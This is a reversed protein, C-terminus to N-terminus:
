INVYNSTLWSIQDILEQKSLSEIKFLQQKELDIIGCSLGINKATEGKDGTLM